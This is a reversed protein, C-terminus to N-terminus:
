SAAKYDHLKYDPFTTDGYVAIKMAMAAVQVAESYVDQETKGTEYRLKLLAQSLEGVEEFLAALNHENGPFKTRARKLETQVNELFVKENITTM